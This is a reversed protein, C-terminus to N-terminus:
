EYNIYLKIKSNDILSTGDILFIKNNKYSNEINYHFNYNDFSTGDLLNIKSVTQPKTANIESYCDLYICNENNDLSLKIKGRDKDYGTFKNLVKFINLNKIDFNNCLNYTGLVDKEENYQFIFRIRNVNKSLYVYEIENSKNNTRQTLSLFPTKDLLLYNFINIIILISFICVFLKYISKKNLIM